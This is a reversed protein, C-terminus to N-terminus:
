KEGGLQALLKKATEDEPNLDLSLRLEAVAAAKNGQEALLVGLNTHANAMNPQCRVAERFAALAGPLDILRKLCHGLNYYAMAHDPKLRAAERFHAAAESYDGRQFPVVGLYFQGNVSDPALRLATRFAAEAEPYAQNDLLFRGYNLWAQDWEPYEKVLNQFETAADGFLHQRSLGLAYDLRADRGAKERTIENLFPDTWDPDDPLQTVIARERTASALDNSRQAIEALLSHAAKQTTPRTATRGLLARAAELDGRQYALRGLGLEARPALSPDDRLRRYQEEAEDLRGQGALTEALRFHMTSESDRLQVAHQFQVIAADSDSFVLMLGQYYPWRVEEPQLREAEIFCTRAAELFRHAALIKGLKGWAAPSRPSRIVKDRAKTVASAVEPDAGDLNVTPPRVKTRSLWAYWGGAGGVGALLVVLMLWPRWRRSKFGKDLSPVLSPPHQDDNTMIENNTM